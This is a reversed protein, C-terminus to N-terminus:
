AQVGGGGDASRPDELRYWEAIKGGVVKVAGRAPSGAGSACDAGARQTLEYDVVLYGRAASVSAIRAGCPLAATWAERDQATKLTLVPTGNQVKADPAFLRAASAIRGQRIARLWRELVRVDAPDADELGVRPVSRPASLPDTSGTPPPTPVPAPSPRRETTQTPTTSASEEKGGGCGALVVATLLTLVALRVGSM